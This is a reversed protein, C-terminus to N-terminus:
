WKEIVSEDNVVEVTGAEDFINNKNEPESKEPMRENHNSQKTEKYSLILTHKTILDIIRLELPSLNEKTASPDHRCWLLWLHLPPLNHVELWNFVVSSRASLTHEWSLRLRLRLRLLLRLRLRLSMWVLWAPSTLKLSTDTNANADSGSVSPFKHFLLLCLRLTHALFLLNEKKKRRQGRWIVNM